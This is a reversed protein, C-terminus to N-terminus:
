NEKWSIFTYEGTTPFHPPPSFILHSDFNYKRTAYGTTIGGSFTFFLGGEVKKAISGYITLLNRKSYTKSCNNLDSWVYGERGFKGEKAIMAADIQLDYESFLGILINKQAILGISDTGDYNTYKIDKNIYINSVSGTIPEKFALIAVRNGDIQGEVWVNDKVFIIGNPPTSTGIAFDTESSIGYTPLNIWGGDKYRCDPTVTNVIKIDITDDTKLIIHYGQKGSNAIVMGNTEALDLMDDAHDNLLNFSVVPVPFERGAMFISPKNPVNLPPNNSDPLPDENGTPMHTHVGFEEAGSHDPDDYKLKSSTIINHAIADFRVGYNSHVRGWIEAGSGFHLESNSLWSYSSWSPIGCQVEITRKVSPYSSLWGVSKVKVITSGNLFPPTIYLEYYGIVTGSNDIYPYPGYPGYNPAPKCAENNCYEDKEHYLAWRYYSVGAEAIHLAQNSAVKYANLKKQLLAVGIAGFLITIFLFTVVIVTVLISGKNNKTNFHNM